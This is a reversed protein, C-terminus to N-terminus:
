GDLMTDLDAFMLDFGKWCDCCFCGPEYEGCREGVWQNMWAEAKTRLEKGEVVLEELDDFM